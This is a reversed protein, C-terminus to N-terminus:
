RSAGLARCADRYFDSTALRLGEADVLLLARRGVGWELVEGTGVGHPYRRPTACAHRAAEARARRAEDMRGAAELLTALNLRAVVLEPNVALARELKTEALEREGAVAHLAGRNALLEPLDRAALVADLERAAAERDGALATAVALQGRRHNHNWRRAPELAVARAYLVQAREPASFAYGANKGGETPAVVMMGTEDAVGTWDHMMQAGAGGAGM